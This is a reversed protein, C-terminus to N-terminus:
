VAIYFGETVFQEDVHADNEDGIGHGHIACTNNLPAGCLKPNGAYSSADRTQLSLRDIQALGLQSPIRGSLHNRSLDLFDISKLQGITPPIDGSLLNRSLNLSVLGILSMIESPIEGILRNSSFDISRLLGLTSGYKSMKGKWILSARDNYDGSGEAAHNYHDSYGYHYDHNIAANSTAQTAM